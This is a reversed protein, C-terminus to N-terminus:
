HHFTKIIKKTSNDFDDSALLPGLFKSVQSVNAVSKEKLSFTERSTDIPFHRSGAHAFVSILHSESKSVSFNPVFSSFDQPKSHLDCARLIDLTGFKPLYQCILDKYVAAVPLVYNPKIQLSKIATLTALNAYVLDPDDFHGCKSSRQLIYTLSDSGHYLFM